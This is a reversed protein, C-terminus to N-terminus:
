GRWPDRREIGNIRKYSTSNTLKFLCLQSIPLLHPTFILTHLTSCSPPPSLSVSLFLSHCDDMQGLSNLSLLRAQWIETSVTFLWIQASCLLTDHVITEHNLILSSSAMPKIVCLCVCKGELEEDGAKHSQFQVSVAQKLGTHRNEYFLSVVLM